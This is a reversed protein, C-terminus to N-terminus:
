KISSIARYIDKKQFCPIIIVMIVLYSSNEINRLYKKLRPLPFGGGSM